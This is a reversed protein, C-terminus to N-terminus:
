VRRMWFSSPWVRQNDITPVFRRVDRPMHDYSSKWHPFTQELAHRQFMQMASSSWLVEFCANFSLFAGLLYQESWFCFNKLVAERPYESPLFIDHVHVLVGPQICPLVDLFERVVDSGVGVVHSSDIFLVDDKELTQFLELDLDQVREPILGVQDPFGTEPVRDQHPDVSILEGHVQDRDQNAQLASALVRTSFGTGIELIKRPKYRRVFTYAIEADVAEFFGNNYHYESRNRERDPFTWEAGYESSAERLFQLQQRLRLDFTLSPTPWGHRELDEVDPVPWYYHSPVVTIGVRQLARFAWRMASTFFESERMQRALRMLPRNGNPVQIASTPRVASGQTRLTRAFTHQWINGFQRM